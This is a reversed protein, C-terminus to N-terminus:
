EEIQTHRNYIKPSYLKDYAITRYRRHRVSLNDTQGDTVPRHETSVASCILSVKSVCAASSKRKVTHYLFEPIELFLPVIGDPVKTVSELSLWNKINNRWPVDVTVLAILKTRGDCTRRASRGGENVACPCRRLADGPEDAVASHQRNRNQESPTALQRDSHGSRRADTYLVNITARDVTMQVQSSGDVATESLVSEDRLVVDSHPGKV